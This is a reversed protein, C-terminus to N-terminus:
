RGHRRAINAVLRDNVNRIDEDIQILKSTREAAARSGENGIGPANGSGGNQTGDDGVVGPLLNEPVDLVEVTTSPSAPWCVASVDYLAAFATISSFDENWDDSGVRFGVSM